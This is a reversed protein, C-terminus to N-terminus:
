YQFRYKLELGQTTTGARSELSLNPTLEVEISARTTEQQTGRQVQFYIDESLYKGVGVVAGAETGPQKELSITDVGLSSRLRETLPMKGTTLTRVALALKVAQLPSIKALNRGFMLRALIEDRPYAPDSSISFQPSTAPGIARLRVLLNEGEHIAVVDISPRPPFEQAFTLVGRKLVFRKTLVNIHGRVLKVTGSLRPKEVTGAVTLNGQWESDLGRGRVFCRRPVSVDLNLALSTM